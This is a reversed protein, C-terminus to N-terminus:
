IDDFIIIKSEKLCQSIHQKEENTQTEIQPIVFFKIDLAIHKLKQKEFKIESDSLFNHLESFDDTLTFDNSQM